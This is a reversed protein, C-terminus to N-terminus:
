YIITASEITEETKGCNRWYYKGISHTHNVVAGTSSYWGTYVSGCKYCNGWSNWHEEDPDYACSGVVIQITENVDAYRTYCGGSTTLYNSNTVNGNNDTHQHYTYSVQLNSLTQAM